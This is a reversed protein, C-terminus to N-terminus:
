SLLEKILLFADKFGKQYSLELEIGHLYNNSNEFDLYLERKNFPLAKEIQSLYQHFQENATQYEFNEKEQKHLEQWAQEILVPEICELISAM